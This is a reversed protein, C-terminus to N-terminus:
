RGDRPTKGSRFENLVAVDSESDSNPPEVVLEELERALLGIQHFQFFLLWPFLAGAAIAGYVPSAIAIMLVLMVAALGCGTKLWCAGWQELNTGLTRVVSSTLPSFISGSDLIGLLTLPTLLWITAGMLLTRPLLASAADGLPLGILFGPLWALFLASVVPFGGVVWELPSTMEPAEMEDHDNAAREFVGVSVASCFFLAAVVPIFVATVLVLPSAEAAMGTWSGVWVALGTALGLVLSVSIGAGLLNPDTIFGFTRLLWNRTDFETQYEDQQDEELAQEASALLAESSKRRPDFDSSLRRNEGVPEALTLETDARGASGQRLAAKPSWNAPPPPITLLSHCDPCRFQRGVQGRRAYSPTQCVKCLFRFEAAELPDDVESAEWPMREPDPWDPALPAEGTRGQVPDIPESGGSSFREAENLEERHGSSPSWAVPRKKPRPTEPALQFEGDADAATAAGGPGFAESPVSAQPPTPTDPLAPPSTQSQLPLWEEDSPRSTDIAPLLLSHGCGPCKVKRGAQEPKAKLSKSCQPCAVRLINNV